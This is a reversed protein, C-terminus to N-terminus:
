SFSMGEKCLLCAKTGRNKKTRDLLDQSEGGCTVSKRM